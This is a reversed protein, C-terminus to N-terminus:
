GMLYCSIIYQWKTVTTTLNPHVEKSKEDATIFSLKFNTVCLLGSKGQKRERVQAFMLVNQAESVLSEGAMLCLFKKLEIENSFSLCYLFFTYNVLYFDFLSSTQFRIKM